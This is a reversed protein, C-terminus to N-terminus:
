ASAPVAEPLPCSIEDADRSGAAWHVLTFMLSFVGVWFVVVVLAWFVGGLM